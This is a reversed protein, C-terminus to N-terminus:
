LHNLPRRKIGDIFFRNHEKDSIRYVLVSKEYELDPMPNLTYLM